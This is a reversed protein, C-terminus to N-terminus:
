VRMYNSLIEDGWPTKCYAGYDERTPHYEIELWETPEEPRGYNRRFRASSGDDSLQVEKGGFNSDCYYGHVIFDDDTDLTEEIAERIIKRLSSETLKITKKM